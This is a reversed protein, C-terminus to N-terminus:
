DNPIQGPFYDLGMPYTVAALKLQQDPSIGGAWFGMSYILSRYPGNAISATLGPAGGPDGLPHGGGCLRVRHQNVDHVSISTPPDCQLQTMGTFSLMFASILLLPAKMDSTSHNSVVLSFSALYKEIM